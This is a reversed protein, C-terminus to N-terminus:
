FSSPSCSDSRASGFVSSELELITLTLRGLWTCTLLFYWFAHTGFQPDSSRGVGYRDFLAVDRFCNSLHGIVFAVAFAVDLAPDCFKPGSLFVFDQEEIVIIDWRNFTDVARVLLM